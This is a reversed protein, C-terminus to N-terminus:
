SQCRHQPNAGNERSVAVFIGAIEQQRNAKAETPDPDADTMAALDIRRITAAQPVIVVLAVHVAGFM